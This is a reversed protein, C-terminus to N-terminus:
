LGQPATRIFFILLYLNLRKDAGIETAWLGQYTTSVFRAHGSGQFSNGKPQNDIRNDFLWASYQPDRM